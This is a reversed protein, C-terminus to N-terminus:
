VLKSYGPSLARPDLYADFCMAAARMLYRGVATIALERETIRVIGDDQLKSLKGIEPAFLEVFPEDYHEQFWAFDIKGHCLLRAIVDRRLLDEESLHCGRAVALQGNEVRQYYSELHKENQAYCGDVASIASMGLGVIDCDAHTSYGQFNRRLTGNHLALSLEDSPLAFHDMGIYQYGADALRDVSLALLGLKNEADPLLTADIQKQAPFLQPLHAYSYTAIRHPQLSTVLELTHTFGEASQNPLGYILDVNISRFGAQHATAIVEATHEFPQVRNVGRQVKPDFDQIGLSIRNFGLKRLTQIREPSVTRPDVEIALERQSPAAFSFREIACDVIEALQDDALFTPTGGGFHLQRVLRDGDFCAAQLAMERKLANVYRVSKSRERTIIRTCGCYFCPSECFPVHFYLSLSKPIPDQNSHAICRRYDDSGFGATFHNATPYSTYRPGAVNYRRALELDFSPQAGM